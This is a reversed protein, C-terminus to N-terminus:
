WEKLYVSGNQANLQIHTPIQAAVNGLFFNRNNYNNPENTIEYYYEWTEIFSDINISKSAYISLEALIPMPIYYGINGSGSRLSINGEDPFDVYAKITGSNINVTVYKAYSNTLEVDCLNANINVYKGRPINFTYHVEYKAASFIINSGIYQPTLDAKYLDYLSDAGVTGAPFAVKREVSIKSYNAIQNISISGKNLATIQLTSINNLPM